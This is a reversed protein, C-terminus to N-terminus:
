RTVEAIDLGLVSRYFALEAISDDLDPMVRHRKQPVPADTLRGKAWMQMLIKVSSVDVSRYHPVDAFGPVWAELWRRDFGVTSGALPLGKAENKLLWYTIRPAWQEFSWRAIHVVSMGGHEEPISCEAWLGSRDHMEDVGPDAATRLHVRVGDANWPVVWSAESITHLDSDTVRFGVELLYHRDEDLGSTETDVWLLAPTPTM